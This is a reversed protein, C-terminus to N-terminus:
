RKPPHLEAKFKLSSFLRVCRCGASTNGCKTVAEQRPKQRQTFTPLLLLLLPILPFSPPPLSFSAFSSSSSPHSLFPFPVYPSAFSSFSSPLFAPPPHSALLYLPHPPSPPFLLHLILSLIPPPPCLLFLPPAPPSLPSPSLTPPSSSSHFCLLQPPLTLGDKEQKRDGKQRQQFFRTFVMMEKLQLGERGRWEAEEAVSGREM